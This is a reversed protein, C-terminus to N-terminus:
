LWDIKDLESENPKLIKLLAADLENKGNQTFEQLSTNYVLRTEDLVGIHTSVKEVYSLDHSSIFITRQSNHYKKIFLVMQNAVLPDLGSFPEDLILLEPTHLVSACFALKKKMGTSYKSVSKKLDKEDEFFYQFLDAIRKKLTASPIQYIKGIFTLYEVGSIEEILELDEGVLGIRRKDPPTLRSSEVGMIQVTGSDPKLLDIMLNILTTKGAGNKGLLSYVQGKEVHLDIHELVTNRGYNKTLHTIQIM